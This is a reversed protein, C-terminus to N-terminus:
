LSEGEKCSYDPIGQKPAAKGKAADEQAWKYITAAHSHYQKGTSAIHCSLRDIYYEWKDPLETKLGSLETDTLIVNNYRGYAAPAPHGTEGEREKEIEKELEIEIEPPRIDSLHGGSTRLASLAKNQLRAARKREAETSSQGILLEINSMYFTGSELVEVLGLKLFIQLAREVTGIQQRTITAIMQATYPIDEDLQLRGGHKLSKLYLKLLINSYLVGDQMSELLVISDDDFYNEKLKLYYYKRNDSM